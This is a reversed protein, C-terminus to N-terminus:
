RDRYGVLAYRATHGIPTAEAARIADLIEVSVRTFGVTSLLDVLPQVNDLAFNPLASQTEASYYRTWQERVAGASITQPRNPDFWFSDIAVVWGGPKLLYWWNRFAHEPDRLTWLVHRSM